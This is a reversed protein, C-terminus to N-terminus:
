NFQDPNYKKLRRWQPQIYSRQLAPPFETHFRQIEEWTEAWHSKAAAMAEADQGDSEALRDILTEMDRLMRLYDLGARVFAVREAYIDKGGTGAEEAARDLRAYADEFFEQNWVERENKGEFKIKDAEREILEWYDTMTEVAPGFARQYYDELIAEGDAYPNWAMQALMYYHPGQNAWHGYISDIFVGIVNHDAAFRMDEIVRRPAVNPLGIHWGARSSVNPRWALHPAIESWRVLWERHKEDPRNHFSWVGSVIVNDEPTAEVPASRSVGYAMATVFLDDRDPFRESLQRALTNAFTIQRDSMAVYEQSLGKWGYRFIEGDPHDWALCNPCVCYGERWGDNANAAFTRRHPNRELESEVDDLWQEWVAPNSKCIKVMHASPWPKEGGGRTGDPQQAFYEPHTEHFREWWDTFPHGPEFFLSDLQLRQYRTWEHGDLQRHLMYIYFVGARARFQPHYRYEFPEFAITSQELVDEGLEGPWLWRVGLHDQLFTYVANVTGYEQQVGNIKRRGLQVQLHDPDWRDRGAIVLHHENTAILIEEPHEFDFDLEPFLEDLVPQHGVWIASEPIPDPAGEIVDPRAGSTKGIYEALERAARATMPPADEFVVIPALSEGDKVIELIEGQSNLSFMMGVLLTVAFIVNRMYSVEKFLLLKFFFSFIGADM